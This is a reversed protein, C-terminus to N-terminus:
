DPDEAHAKFVVEYGKSKLLRRADRIAELPDSHEMYGHDSEDVGEADVEEESTFLHWGSDQYVLVAQGPGDELADEDFEGTYAADCGDETFRGSIKLTAIKM